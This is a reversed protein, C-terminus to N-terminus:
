KEGEKKSAPKPAEKSIGEENSAPPIVFFQRIAAGTTFVLAMGAIALYIRLSDLPPLKTGLAACMLGLAVPASTTGIFTNVAPAMDATGWYGHKVGKWIVLVLTAALGIAPAVRPNLLVGVAVDILGVMGDAVPLEADAM